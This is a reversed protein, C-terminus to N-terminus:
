YILCESLCNGDMPYDIKRRCNCTKTTSPAPNKMIKSNHKRIVNSMHPMCSCSLKINNSSFLKYYKHHRTFHKDILRMFIKGVNTKVNATYPPNFWIIQRKRTQRKSLSPIYTVNENFASNKLAINYDPAAKVFHNKDCSNEPIGNSIMSSIQNIISPPHNSHKNIYLLENNPKRYPCYTAFKLDFTVDLFDTVILNCGVTISLGNSKFIKFLKKKIKESDPGSTNEFCSLGDDRYSGINQKGFEKTLLDLLYLGVLECLEADDYSSITVDFEPNDKKVWVNGKDFLLSKRAHYITKIFKEEITTM